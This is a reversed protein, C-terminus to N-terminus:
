LAGCVCRVRRLSLFGANHQSSASVQRYSERDAVSYVLVFADRSLDDGTLPLASEIFHM